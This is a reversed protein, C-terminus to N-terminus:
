GNMCSLKSIRPETSAFVDSEHGTDEVFRCLQPESVGVLRRINFETARMVLIRAHTNPRSLQLKQPSHHNMYVLM